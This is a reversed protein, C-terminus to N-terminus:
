RVGCGALWLRSRTSSASAVRASADFAWKENRDLGPVFIGLDRLRRAVSQTVVGYVGLAALLLATAAFSGILVARFRPAQLNNSLVSGM